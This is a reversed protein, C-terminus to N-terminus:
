GSTPYTCNGEPLWCKNTKKHVKWLPKIVACLCPISIGKEKEEEECM